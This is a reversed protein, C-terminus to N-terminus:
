PEGDTPRPQPTWWSPGEARARRQAEKDTLRIFVLPSDLLFAEQKLVAGDQRVWLRGRPPKGDNGGAGANRYVVLWANELSGNWYLPEVQEVTAQLIELPNKGPWLPNYVPVSWSQGVHLGPLQAQPALADLPMSSSNFPLSNTLTTGAVTVLLDMQRGDVTGRIKVSQGPPDFWATSEFRLLHGLADIVAVNGADVRLSGGSRGLLGALQKLPGSLMEDLPLADFRVRGRVECLGSPLRQTATLAWGLQKDRFIVNWGVPPSDAQAEVISPLSPPEGVLMLPLVKAKVLWSMTALWLIVVTASFWRNHM